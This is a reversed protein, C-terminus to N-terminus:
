FSKSASILLDLPPFYNYFDFHYSCFFNQMYDSLTHELLGGVFGHHVSKAASHKKFVIAIKKDEIFFLELLRKYYHLGERYQFILPIIKKEQM